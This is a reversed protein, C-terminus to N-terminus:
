ESPMPKTGYMRALLRNIWPRRADAFLLLEGLRRVLPRPSVSALLFWGLLALKVPGSRNSRRWLARVADAVLSPVRDGPIPHREPELRLSILRNALDALSLIRDPHELGLEGALRLLERSTARAYVVSDRVHAPSLRSHLLEYGNRGHVRYHGCVEDIWAARGLLASLHVTYWDAGHRPYQGEPVPLIMQLASSRFATGSSPLWPTDYPYTLAVSRLDGTPPRLHTPPKTVGTPRGAADIVALRYQVRVIRADDAFAAAVAEAAHPCLVDDADLFIAVDGGAREM